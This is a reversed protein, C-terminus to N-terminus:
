IVFLLMVLVFALIVLFLVPLFVSFAAIVMALFDGKEPPNEKLNKRAKERKAEKEAKTPRKRM